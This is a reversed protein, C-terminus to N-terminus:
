KVFLVDFPKVLMSDKFLDFEVANFRGNFVITDGVKICEPYSGTAPLALVIGKRFVSEIERIEKTMEMLPKGDEDLEETEKPVNVERQIMVPELPKVLIDKVPKYELNGLVIELLKENSVNELSDIVQEETTYIKEEM